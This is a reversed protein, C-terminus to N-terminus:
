FIALISHMFAINNYCFVRVAFGVSQNPRIADDVFDYLAATDDYFHSIAGRDRPLETGYGDIDFRWRVPLLQMLLLNNGRPWFLSPYGTTRALLLM